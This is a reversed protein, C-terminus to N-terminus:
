EQLKLYSDFKPAPMVISLARYILIIIHGYVGIYLKKKYVRDFSVNTGSIPPYKIVHNM